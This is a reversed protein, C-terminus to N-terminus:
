NDNKKLHRFGAFDDIAIVFRADVLNALQTINKHRSREHELRHGM